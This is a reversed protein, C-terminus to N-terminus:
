STLSSRINNYYDISRELLGLGYQYPVRLIAKPIRIKEGEPTVFGVKNKTLRPGLVALIQVFTLSSFDTCLSFRPVERLLQELTEQNSTEYTGRKSNIGTRASFYDGRFRSGQSHIGCFIGFEEGEFTSEKSFHGCNNEFKKGIFTSGISKMGCQNGFEVGRFVSDRAGAGCTIGARGTLEVEINSFDTAYSSQFIGDLGSDQLDLKFKRHGQNYSRLLLYNLFYGTIGKKSDRALAYTLFDNIEEPNLDLHEGEEFNGRVRSYEKGTRFVKEYDVGKERSVKERPEQLEYNELDFDKKKM